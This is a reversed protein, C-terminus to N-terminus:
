STRKIAVEVGTAWRGAQGEVRWTGDIQDHQGAITITDDEDVPFEGRRYLSAATIVKPTRSDNSETSSRPVFRVQDYDATTTTETTNGLDDTTTTVSTLTVTIHRNV